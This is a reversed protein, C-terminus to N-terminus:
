QVAQVRFSRLRRDLEQRVREGHLLQDRREPFGSWGMPPAPLELNNKVSFNSILNRSSSIHDGQSYKLLQCNGCWNQM